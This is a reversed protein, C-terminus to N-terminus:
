FLRHLHKKGNVIRAFVNTTTRAYHAACLFRFAGATQLRRPWFLDADELEQEVLHYNQLSRAM